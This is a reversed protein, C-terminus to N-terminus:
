RVLLFTNEANFHWVFASEREPTNGPIMNTIFSTPSNQASTPSNKAFTLTM